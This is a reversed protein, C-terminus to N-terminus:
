KSRQIFKLYLLRSICSKVDARILNPDPCIFESQIVSIMDKVSHRGDCLSFIKSSVKNLVVPFMNERLSIILIDEPEKRVILNTNKIFKDEESIETIVKMVMKLM